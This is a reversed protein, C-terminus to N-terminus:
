GGSFACNSCKNIIEKLYRKFVFIKIVWLHYERSGLYADIYDATDIRRHERALQGATYGQGNPTQPNITHEMLLQVVTLHGERAALHLPLNGKEDVLNVDAGHQILARVADAFGERAADHTVTLSLVPDRINPDARAVLLHEVLASNGLKVVQLATRKYTNFGNVHAGDQLLISVEHLNGSASANCLKDTLSRDAM